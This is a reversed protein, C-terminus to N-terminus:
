TARRARAGPECHDDECGTVAQVELVFERNVPRDSPQSSMWRYAMDAARTGSLTLSIPAARLNPALAESEEQPTFEAGEIRSTGAAELRLQEQRVEEIWQPLYPLRRLTGAATKAEVLRDLIATKDYRIWRNPPAYLSTAASTM